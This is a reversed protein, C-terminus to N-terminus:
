KKVQLIGRHYYRQARASNIELVAGAREQKPDRQWRKLEVGLVVPRACRSGRGRLAGPWPQQEGRQM